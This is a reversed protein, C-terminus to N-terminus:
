EHYEGEIFNIIDCKNNKLKNLVINKEITKFLKNINYKDKYKLLDNYKIDIDFVSNIPLNNLKEKIDIELIESANICIISGYKYIDYPTINKKNVLKKINNIIYKEEKTFVYDCDIQAWIGYYDSTYIIKKYEINLYSKLNYEDIISFFKYPNEKFIIDLERKKYVSNLESILYGKEKLFCKIENDLDFDLLCAYKIARMIRTKDEFLRDYTNGIVKIIRNKLDKQAELLDIINNDKDLV